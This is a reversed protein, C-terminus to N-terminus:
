WTVRWLQYFVGLLKVKAKTKSEVPENYIMHTVSRTSFCNIKKTNPAIQDVEAKLAITAM